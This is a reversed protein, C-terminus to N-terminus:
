SRHIQPFPQDKVASGSVSSHFSTEYAIMGMGYVDTGSTIPYDYLLATNICGFNLTYNEYTGIEPPSYRYGDRDAVPQM